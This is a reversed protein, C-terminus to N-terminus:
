PSGADRDGDMKAGCHCYPEKQMEERQCLSCMYQPVLNGQYDKLLNHRKWITERWEGHKVEEVDIAPLEKVKNLVAECYSKIANELLTKCDLRGIDMTITISSIREILEDRKIFDDAM